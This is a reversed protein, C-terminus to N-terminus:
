RTKGIVTALTVRSQKGNGLHTVNFIHLDLSMGDRFRFQDNDPDLSPIELSKNGAPVPCWKFFDCTGQEKFVFLELGFWALLTLDHGLSVLFSCAYSKVLKERSLIIRTM